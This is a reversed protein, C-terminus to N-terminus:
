EKSTPSPLASAVSVFRFQDNGKGRRRSRFLHESSSGSYRSTQYHVFNKIERAVSCQESRASRPHTPPHSNMLKNEAIFCACPVISIRIGQLISHSILITVFESCHVQGGVFEFSYENHSIRTVPCTHVKLNYETGTNIKQSVWQFASYNRINQYSRNKPPFNIGEVLVARGKLNGM